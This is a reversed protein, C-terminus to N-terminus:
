YQKNATYHVISDFLALHYLVNLIPFSLIRWAFYIFLCSQCQHIDSLMLAVWEINSKHM